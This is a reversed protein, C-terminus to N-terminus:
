TRPTGLFALLKDRVRQRLKRVADSSLPRPPAYGRDGLLHLEYFRREAPTLRPAFERLQAAMTLPGEDRAPDNMEAVPTERAARPRGSRLWEQVAQRTIAYLLAGLRGRAPDFARLRKHDGVILSLWVRSTIEEALDDAPPLRLMRCVHRRLRPHYETYLAHWADQDGALCRQVLLLEPHVPETTSM